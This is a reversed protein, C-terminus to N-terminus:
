FFFFLTVSFSFLFDFSSPKKATIIVVKVVTKTASSPSLVWIAVSISEASDPFGTITKRPAAIAKKLELKTTTSRPLHSDVLISGSFNEKSAPTKIIRTPIHSVELNIISCM